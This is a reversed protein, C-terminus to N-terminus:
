LLLCSSNLQRVNEAEKSAKQQKVISHDLQIHLEEVQQELIENKTQMSELRVEYFRYAAIIMTIAVAAIFWWISLYLITFFLVPLAFLLIYFKKMIM